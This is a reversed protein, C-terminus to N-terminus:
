PYSGTVDCDAIWHDDVSEDSTSLKSLLFSNVSPLLSSVYM